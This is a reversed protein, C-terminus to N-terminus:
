ILGHPNMESKRIVHPAQVFEVIARDAESLLAQKAQVTQGEEFGFARTPEGNSSWMVGHCRELESGYDLYIITAPHCYIVLKGEPSRSM